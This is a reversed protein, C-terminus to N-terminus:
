TWDSFYKEPHVLIEKIAKLVPGEYLRVRAVMDGDALAKNQAIFQLRTEHAVANLVKYWFQALVIVSRMGIQVDLDKLAERLAREAASLPGLGNPPSTDM